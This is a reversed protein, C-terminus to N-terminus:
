MNLVRHIRKTPDKVNLKRYIDDHVAEKQGSIRIHHVQNKDNNMIITTRCHSALADKISEWKRTDGQDRLHNEICILLHDALVSIFLHGRTRDAQHHYVPRMGLDTKLSRFAYEVQTLTNYLEWIEEAQMDQYSTEIVYCGTLTM